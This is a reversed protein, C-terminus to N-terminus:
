SSIVFYSANHSLISDSLSDNVSGAQLRAM